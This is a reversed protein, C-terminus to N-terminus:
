SPTVEAAVILRESQDGFPDLDYSGYVQWEAFGAFELMLELEARHVYRMPMSTAVRRLSGDSGILDYWLETAITQTAAAIRRAAFKDVRTGDETVWVGEHVLSHDLGRLTEPTPNLVDILLMGRPDLARRVSALAARQSRADPLHLLGNLALIAIGFPGGPAEDAATMEGRHLQVLHELGSEEIRTRARELMAESRDVGTVRFGAEAIGTLLRGTGCGLELVPDGVVQIFNLYFDVDDAFSEHELDYLDAIGAYADIPAVPEDRPGLTLRVGPNNSPM